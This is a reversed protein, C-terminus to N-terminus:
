GNLNERILEEYEARSKEDYQGICELIEGLAPVIVYSILYDYKARELSDKTSQFLDTMRNYESILLFLTAKMSIEYKCGICRKDKSYECVKGIASLLCQCDGEKSFAAGNCIRELAGMIDVDQTCIEQVTRRARRKAKEVSRVTREIEGPSLRLAQIMNTQKSPDADRYKNGSVMELLMAPIFSLVGRELLEYAIREPTYGNFKADKLYILSTESYDRYSGKHSRAFSVIRAGLNNEDSGTISAALNFRSQLFAKTASLSGFDRKIFLSGIEEGMYKKIDRYKTVKRVLPGEDGALRRHAEAIAFLTGMHVECSHPIFFKVPDPKTRNRTKNPRIVLYQMRKVISLCVIRAENDSFCNTAIKNLIVEPSEALIPYGIRQLDTYRLSCLMNLTMFLWADICKRNETARKYMENESIYEENFLYYLLKLTFEDSYAETQKVRSSRPDMTYDTNYATKKKLRLWALFDTLQEGNGKTMEFTAKEVLDSVANNSYETLEDDLEYLLFDLIYFEDEARVIRKVSTVGKSTKKKTSDKCFEKFAKYTQPYEREFLEDITIESKCFRHLPPTLLEVQDDTLIIRDSDPLSIGFWNNDDLFRIVEVVSTNTNGIVIPLLDKFDTM